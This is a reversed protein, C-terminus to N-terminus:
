NVARQGRILARVVKGGDPCPKWGWCASLAAVIILGRGHQDPDAEDDAWPALADAGTWTALGDIGVAPQRPVPPDPIADRVAVLVTRLGAILTLRVPADIGKRGTAQIANEVLETVVSQADGSLEALGWARLVDRTHRRASPVADPCAEFALSDSRYGCPQAARTNGAQHRGCDAVTTRQM